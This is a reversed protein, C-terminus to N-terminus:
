KTKAPEAFWVMAKRPDISLKLGTQQEIHDLVTRIVQDREPGDSMRAISSSRHDSIGVMAPLPGTAENIASLHAISGFREIM